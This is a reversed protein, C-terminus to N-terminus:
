PSSHATTTTSRRHKSKNRALLFQHPAVVVFVCDRERKNCYTLTLNRTKKQERRHRSSQTRTTGQKQFIPINTVFPGDPWRRPHWTPTPRMEIKLVRYNELGATLGGETFSISHGVCWGFSKRESSESAAWTRTRRKTTAAPRPTPSLLYMCCSLLM